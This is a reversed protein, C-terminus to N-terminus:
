SLRESNCRAYLSLKEVRVPHRVVLAYPVKRIWYSQARLSDFESMPLWTLM